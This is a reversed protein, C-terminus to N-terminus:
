PYAPRFSDQRARGRHGGRFPQAGAQEAPKGPIREAVRQSLREYECLASRQSSDPGKCKEADGNARAGRDDGVVLGVRSMRITRENEPQNDECPESAIAGCPQP